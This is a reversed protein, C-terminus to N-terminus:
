NRGCVGLATLAVSVLNAVMHMLIPAFITDDREMAWSFVFGMCFGYIGQVVNGHWCAFLASSWLASAFFGMKERMGRFGLGRFIVEEAAPIVVGMAWVQLKLSPGYFDGSKMSFGPFVASIRSIKILTNVTLCAAIGSLILFGAEKKGIRFPPNKKDTKRTYLRLLVPLAAMAGAGTCALPEWQRFFLCCLDVALGYVLASCVFTWIM